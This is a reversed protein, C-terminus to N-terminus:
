HRPRLPGSRIVHGGDDLLEATASSIEFDGDWMLIAVGAEVVGDETRGNGDSVRIRRASSENVWGGYVSQGGSSWGGSSSWIADHPVQHPGSGWGGGAARWGTVDDRALGVFCRVLRGSSNRFAAAVVAREGYRKEHIVEITESIADSDRTLAFIAAQRLDSTMTVEGAIGASVQRTILHLGVRVGLADPIERIWGPLSACFDVRAVQPLDQFANAPPVEETRM